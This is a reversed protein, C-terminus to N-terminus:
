LHVVGHHLAHLQKHCGKKGLHVRSLGRVEVGDLMLLQLLLLMLGLLLEWRLVKLMLLLVMMRLLMRRLARVLEVVLNKRRAELRSRLLVLVAHGLMCRSRITPCEFSGRTSTSAEVTSVVAGWAHGELCKSSSM